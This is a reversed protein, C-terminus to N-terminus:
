AFMHLGTQPRRSKGPSELRKLMVRSRARMAPTGSRGAVRLLDIATPLSAPDQLTLEAIGHLATTKVISSPDELWGLLVAAIRRCESLSLPLRPLTLALNWRVKPEQTDALLGILEEKYAATSRRLAASPTRMVRELVDAARSAVGPDEDWILEILRPIQRPRDAIWETIVVVRGLSMRSRGVALEARLDPSRLYSSRLHKFRPNASSPGHM